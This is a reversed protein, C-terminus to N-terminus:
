YITYYTSWLFQSLALAIVLSRMEKENDYVDVFAKNANNELPYKNNKIFYIQSKIMNRCMKLYSDVAYELTLNNSKLYLFYDRAFIEASKLFVSDQTSLYSVLKKKQLPSKEYIQDVLKKFYQEKM